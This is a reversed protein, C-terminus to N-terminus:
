IFQDGNKATHAYKIVQRGRKAVIIVPDKSLGSDLWMIGRRRNEGHSPWIKTSGNFRTCHGSKALHRLTSCANRKIDPFSENFWLDAVASHIWVTFKDPHIDHRSLQDRFDDELQKGMDEDINADSRTELMLHSVRGYEAVNPCFAQLIKTEFQPCRTVPSVGPFPIHDTLMKIIDAFINLRHEEVFAYVDPAWTDSYQEIKKLRIFYARIALDDDLSANNGTIVYTLNNPRSEEGRGYPAKGSIYPMTILGSFEESKFTGTVNDVLFVRQMRASSSVLRETIKDMDKAFARKKVEIPPKGYLTSVINALTTKGSGPKESDIFWLPRPTSPHFMLPAAIFSKLAIDFGEVPNFFSVLKNFYKFSPDPSPLPKHSYYVDDRKPFDPVQSISEYRIAEAHIAEYYDDRSVFGVGGQWTLHRKSKRQIWSFLTTTKRMYYITDTDRDHDFLQEGVKRPFGLFRRHCEEVLSNIQRPKKIIKVQKGSEDKETIFNRFELKNADKAADLEPTYEKAPKADAVDAETVPKSATVLAFLDDLSHGEDVIYNYVDGKPRDSTKVLYVESAVGLLSKAITRGHSLGSEDNDYLIAVQKGNFTQSYNKRWKKAGGVNTTAALNYGILLDASKEGEVIFVQSANIINPLNYLVPEIHSVKWHGRDDCQLFTKDETAHELRVSQMILNGVEDTYRHRATERYGENRTLRAYKSTPDPRLWLHDIPYTNGLIECAENLQDSTVNGPEAGLRVIAVLDIISGGQETVFDHWTTDSILVNKGDGGRWTAACRNDRGLELGLVDRAADLCNVSKRVLEWNYRKSM